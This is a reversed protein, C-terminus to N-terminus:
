FIGLLIMPLYVNSLCFDQEFLPGGKAITFLCPESPARAQIMLLSGTWGFFSVLQYITRKGTIDQLYGFIPFM